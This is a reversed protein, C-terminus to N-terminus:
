DTAAELSSSYRSPRSILSLSSSSSPRVSGYMSTSTLDVFDGTQSTAKGSTLSLSEYRTRTVFLLYNEHLPCEARLLSICNFWKNLYADLYSTAM